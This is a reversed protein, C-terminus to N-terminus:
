LLNLAKQSIWIKGYTTRESANKSHHLHILRGWEIANNWAMKVSMKRNHCEKLETYNLKLVKRHETNQKRRDRKEKNKGKKLEVHIKM